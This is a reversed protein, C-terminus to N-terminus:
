PFKDGLIQVQETLRIGFKAVLEQVGQQLAYLEKSLSDFSQIVGYYKDLTRLVQSLTARKGLHRVLKRPEGQLSRIVEPLLVRDHHGARHYTPVDFHWSDYEM